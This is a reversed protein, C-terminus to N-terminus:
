RKGNPISDSLNFLRSIYYSSFIFIAPTIMDRHRLMTGINGSSMALGTGLAMIICFFIIAEIRGYRISMLIGPIAFICLILFFIKFPYFLLLAFSISSSLIPEALLHYWGKLFYGGWDMLSYDQTDKGPIFLRYIQGGTNCFGKQSVVSYNLAESTYFKMKEILNIHIIALIFLILLSLIFFLKKNNKFFMISYSVLFSLPIVTFYHFRMLGKIVYFLPLIFLVYWYNNKKMTLFFLYVSLYVLFTLLSQKAKTSSYYFSTQNLLFFLVSLYAVRHNFICIVSRYILIATFLHLIVNMFNILVPKFGYAAYIIAYIYSIIGVEYEDIPPIVREKIINRHYRELGWARDLIHIGRMQSVSEMDPIHGTLATSIQWGNASYAEGDDMFISKNLNYKFRHQEILIFAVLIVHLFLFICITKSLLRNKNLFLKFIFIAIFFFVALWILNDLLALM